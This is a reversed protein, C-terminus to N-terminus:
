NTEEETDQSIYNISPLAFEVDNGEIAHAIAHLMRQRNECYEDSFPVIDNFHCNVKVEIHDENYNFLDARFPRSGDTILKPCAKVIEEKISALTAPLKKIDSYRFRLTQKVQSKTSKSLNSIKQNFLKSNPVITVINDYGRIETEILGIRKVVGETGGELVVEDGERFVEWGRVVLGGIIQEAIGKAALSFFLAGVGSAAFVSRLGMSVDLGLFDVLFAVFVSIIIFDFLRDFLTVRGLKEPDKSVVISALVSRKAASLTLAFLITLAVQFAKDRGFIEPRLVNSHFAELLVLGVRLAAFLRASQTISDAVGYVFTKRFDKSPIQQKDALSTINYILECTPVTTTSLLASVALDEFIFPDAVITDFADPVARCVAPNRAHKLGPQQCRLTQKCFVHNNAQPSFSVVPQYYFVLSFIGPLLRM